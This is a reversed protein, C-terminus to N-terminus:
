FRTWTNCGKIFGISCSKYTDGYPSSLLETTIPSLQLFKKRLLYSLLFDLSVNKFITKDGLDMQVNKVEIAPMDIKSEM